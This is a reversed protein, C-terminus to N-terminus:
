VIQTIQGDRLRDASAPDHSPLYVTPTSSLYDCIRGTTAIAVKPNTSVGDSRRELLQSETYSADGALFYDLGPTKVIVSVHNPTHGPTLVIM